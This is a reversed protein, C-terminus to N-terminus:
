AHAESVGTRVIRTQRSPAQDRLDLLRVDVGAEAAAVVSQLKAVMGATAGGDEILARAGDPDLSPITRGARDLVGATTGGVLLRDARLQVALWGALTDANVNLLQAQDSAAISAIVPVYGAKVLDLLLPTRMEVPTGVLGLDLQRGEQVRISSRRSIAIGADAGTLGVAQVGAHVLSAVLETNIRGALTSVATALTPEDTIRIGADFRPTIGRTRLEADIARGGGHVIVTRGADVIPRIAGLIAARVPPDEVLEGGLKVVTLPPVTM